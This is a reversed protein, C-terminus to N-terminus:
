SRVDADRIGKQAGRARNLIAVYHKELYRISTANVSHFSDAALVDILKEIAEVSSKAKVLLRQASYRNEKITGDLTPLNLKLQFYELVRNINENGYNANQLVKTNNKEIRLEKNKYHTVKNNSPQSKTTVESNSKTNSESNSSGQYESWKCISYETFRNNSKQTVMKAANLRRIAKYIASDKCGIQQALQIRGFSGKGNKDATLLLHLFVRFALPDSVYFKNQLVKRHLKIWGNMEYASGREGLEANM